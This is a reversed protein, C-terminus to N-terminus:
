SGDLLQGGFESLPLVPYYYDISCPIKKSFCPYQGTRRDEPIAPVSENYLLALPDM